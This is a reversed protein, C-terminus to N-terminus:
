VTQYLFKVVQFFSLTGSFLIGSSKSDIIKCHYIRGYLLNPQELLKKGNAVVTQKEKHQLLSM